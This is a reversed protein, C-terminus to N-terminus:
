HSHRNIYKLEVCVGFDPFIKQLPWPIKFLQLAPWGSNIPTNRKKRQGATCTFRNQTYLSLGALSYWSDVKRRPKQTLSVSIFLIVNQLQNQCRCAVEESPVSYHKWFRLWFPPPDIWAIVKQGKCFDIHFHIENEKM